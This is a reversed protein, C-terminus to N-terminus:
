YPIEKVLDDTKLKGRDELLLIAAATFQKTMSAINFKTTPSNPVNWELDAMGYSRSFIVKGDKAALISGMFMQADVYPQVVRQMSDAITQATSPRLSLALVVAILALRFVM